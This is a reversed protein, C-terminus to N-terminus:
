PKHQSHVGVLLLHGVSGITGFTAGAVWWCRLYGATTGGAVHLPSREAAAVSHEHVNTERASSPVAAARRGM